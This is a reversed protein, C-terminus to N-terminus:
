MGKQKRVARRGSKSYDVSFGSLYSYVFKEFSDTHQTGITWVRKEDLPNAMYCDRLADIAERRDRRNIKSLDVAVKTGNDNYKATLARIEFSGKFESKNM